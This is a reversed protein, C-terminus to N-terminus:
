ARFLMKLSTQWSIARQKGAILEIREQLQPTELHRYLKEPPKSPMDSSFLFDCNDRLNLFAAETVLSKKGLQVLAMLADLLQCVYTDSYFFLSFAFLFISLM